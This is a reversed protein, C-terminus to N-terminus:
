DAFALTKYTEDAVVPPALSVTALLFVTVIIKLTFVTVLVGKLPNEAAVADTRIPPLASFTQAIM